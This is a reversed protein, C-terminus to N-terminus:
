LIPFRGTLAISSDLSLCICLGPKNLASWGWSMVSMTRENSLDNVDAEAVLAMFTGMGPSGIGIRGEEEVEERWCRAAPM